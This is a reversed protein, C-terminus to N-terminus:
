FFLCLHLTNYENLFLKHHNEILNELDTVLTDHLKPAFVIKVIEILLLIVKWKNYDTSHELKQTIDSIILPCFILLCYTQAARQGILHDAKDLCIPSPKNTRNQLGYNFTIIKDNIEKIM